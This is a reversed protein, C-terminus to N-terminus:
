GTCVAAVAYLLCGEGRTGDLGRWKGCVSGDGVCRCFMLLMLLILLVISVETKGQVASLRREEERIGAFECLPSQSNRGDHDFRDSELMRYEQVRVRRCKMSRWEEVRGVSVSVWISFPGDLTEKQAIWLLVVRCLFWGEKCGARSRAKHQRKKGGEM